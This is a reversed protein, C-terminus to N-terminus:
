ASRRTLVGAEIELRRDHDGAIWARMEEATMADFAAWMQRIISVLPQPMKGVNIIAEDGRVAAVVADPHTRLWTQASRIESQSFGELPDPLATM